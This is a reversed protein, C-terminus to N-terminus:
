PPPPAESSSSSGASVTSSISAFGSSSAPNACDAWIMAFEIGIKIVILLTNMPLSVFASRNIVTITSIPGTAEEMAYPDAIDPPDVYRLLTCECTTYGTFPDTAPQLATNTICYYISGPPINGAPNNGTGDPVQMVRRYIEKATNETYVGFTM